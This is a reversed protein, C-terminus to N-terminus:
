ALRSTFSPDTSIYSSLFVFLGSKKLHLNPDPEGIASYVKLREKYIILSAQFRTLFIWVEDVYTRDAMKTNVQHILIHSSCSAFYQELLCKNM